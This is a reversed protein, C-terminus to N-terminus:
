EEFESAVGELVLVWASVPSLRDVLEQVAVLDTGIPVLVIAFHVGRMIAHEGIGSVGIAFGCEWPRLVVVNLTGLAARVADRIGLKSIARVHTRLRGRLLANAEGEARPKAAGLAIVDLTGGRGGSMESSASIYVTGALAAAVFRAKGDSTTLGSFDLAGQVDFAWTKVLNGDVNGEFGAWRAEVGVTVTAPSAIITGMTLNETLVYEVGWATRAILSGAEVTAAAGSSVGFAVTITGTAKEPGTAILIRASRLEAVSRDSVTEFVRAIARFAEEGDRDAWGQVFHEPLRAKLLEFFTDGGSM